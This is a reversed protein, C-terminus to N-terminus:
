SLYITKSVYGLIIDYPSDQAPGRELSLSTICDFFSFLHSCLSSLSFPLLPYYCFYVLFSITEIFSFVKFIKEPKNLLITVIGTIDYVKVRHYKHNSKNIFSRQLPILWHNICILLGNKSYSKVHLSIAVFKLNGSSINFSM